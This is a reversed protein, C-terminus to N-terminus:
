GKRKGWYKVRKRSDISNVVNKEVSRNRFLNDSM